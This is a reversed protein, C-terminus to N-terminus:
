LWGHFLIFILDKGANETRRHTPVIDYYITNKPPHFQRFVLQANQM